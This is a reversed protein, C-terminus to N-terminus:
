IRDIVETNKSKVALIEQLRQYDEWYRERFSSFDRSVAIRRSLYVAVHPTIREKGFIAIQWSIIEWSLNAAALKNLETELRVVEDTREMDRWNDYFPNPTSVDKKVSEPVQNVPADWWEVSEVAIGLWEAIPSSSAIPDDKNGEPKRRRSITYVITWAILFVLSGIGWIVYKEDQADFFNTWRREIQEQNIRPQNDSSPPAYRYKSLECALQGDIVQQSKNETERCIRRVAEASLEVPVQQAVLVDVWSTAHGPSVSTFAWL